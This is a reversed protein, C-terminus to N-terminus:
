RRRQSMASDSRDDRRRREETPITLEIDFSKRCAFCHRTDRTLTMETSMTDASKCTPCGPREQRMATDGDGYRWVISEPLVTTVDSNLKKCTRSSHANTTM